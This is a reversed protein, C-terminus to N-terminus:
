SIILKMTPWGTGSSYTGIIISSISSSPSSARAKRQPLATGSSM